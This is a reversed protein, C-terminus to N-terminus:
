PVARMVGSDSGGAVKRRCSATGVAVAGSLGTSEIATTIDLTTLENTLGKAPLGGAAGTSGGAIHVSSATARRSDNPWVDVMLATALGTVFERIASDTAASSGVGTTAMGCVAGRAHNCCSGIMPGTNTVGITAAM